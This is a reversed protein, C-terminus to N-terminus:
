LDDDVARVRTHSATGPPQDTDKSQQWLSTTFHAIHLRRATVMESLSLSLSRHAALSLSLQHFYRGDDTM